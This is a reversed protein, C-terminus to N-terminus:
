RALGAALEDASLVPVADISADLAQFLPESLRPLDSAHKLDFVAIMTRQDHEVTSWMGEPRTQEAFNRIVERIAGSHVAESGRAAPIRVKYLVRM